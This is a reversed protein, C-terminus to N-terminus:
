WNNSLNKMYREEFIPDNMARELESFNWIAMTHLTDSDTEGDVLKQFKKYISYENYWHYPKELVSLIAEADMFLFSKLFKTFYVLEWYGGEPADKAFVGWMADDMRDQYDKWDQKTEFSMWAM